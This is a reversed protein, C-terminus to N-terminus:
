GDFLSAIAARASPLRVNRPRRWRAPDYASCLFVGPLPTKCPTLSLVPRAVMQRLDALGGNIDGGILNANGAEDRRHQAREQGARLGPAPRSASSKRRSGRKPGYGYEHSGEPKPTLEENLVKGDREISFRLPM